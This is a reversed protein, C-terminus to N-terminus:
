GKPSIHIFLRALSGGIHLKRVEIVISLPELHSFGLAESSAHSQHSEFGCGDSSDSVLEIRQAVAVRTRLKFDRYFYYIKVAFQHPYICFKLWAGLSPAIRM